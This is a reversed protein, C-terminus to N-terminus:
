RIYILGAENLEITKTVNLADELALIIWAESRFPGTEFRIKTIPDPPKFNVSVSDYLTGAPIKIEKIIVGKELDIIDVITDPLPPKFFENSSPYDAYLRYQRINFTKDIIIGYGTSPVINGCPVCEEASMAMQQVRRIDQGLKNAARQLAFQKEGKRYNPLILATLLLIIAAVVLLEVLTFGMGSKNNFLPAQTFSKQDNLM